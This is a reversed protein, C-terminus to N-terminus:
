DEKNADEGNVPGFRNMDATFGKLMEEARDQPSPHFHTKYLESALAVLCMAVSLYCWTAPWELQLLLVITM